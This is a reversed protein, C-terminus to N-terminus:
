PVMLAYPYRTPLDEFSLQVLTRDRDRITFTPAAIGREVLTGAVGLTELVELTRAHVVAARSTNGGEAQRDIVTVDVGEGALAAATALGVPGAGVVLVDTQRPLAPVKM